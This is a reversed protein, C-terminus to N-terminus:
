GGLKVKNTILINDIITSNIGLMCQEGIHCFGAVAVRPSVFTHSGIVSDHAITSCVNLLVNNKISVNKDVFAGPFLVSGEGISATPDVHCSEDVITAFPIGSESFRQYMDRRADFHNYGIACILKDFEGKGYFDPIEDCKGLVPYDDVSSATQYDDFFGMIKFGNRRAYHAIQRGLDSSGIIALRRM